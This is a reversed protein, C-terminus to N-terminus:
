LWDFRTFMDIWTYYLRKNRLWRLKILVLVSLQYIFLWIFIIKRMKKKRIRIIKKPNGYFQWVIIINIVLHPYFLLAAMNKTTCIYSTKKSDLQKMKANVLWTLDFRKGNGWFWTINVYFPVLPAKNYDHGSIFRWTCMMHKKWFRYWIQLLNLLSFPEYPM